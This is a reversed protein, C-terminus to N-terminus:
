VSPMNKSALVSSLSCAKLDDKILLLYKKAFVIFSIFLTTYQLTADQLKLFIADSWVKQAAPDAVIQSVTVAEAVGNRRVKFSDKMGKLVDIHHVGEMMKSPIYVISPYSVLDSGAQLIEGNYHLDMPPNFYVSPNKILLDEFISKEMFNIDDVFTSTANKYFEVYIIKLIAISTPDLKESKIVQLGPTPTEGENLGKDDIFLTQATSLLNFVTNVIAYLVDKPQSSPMLQQVKLIVNKTITDFIAMIRKREATMTQSFFITKMFFTVFYNLFCSANSVVSPSPQAVRTMIQGYLQKFARGANPAINNPITYQNGSIINHGLDRLSGLMNQADMDKQNMAQQMHDVTAKLTEVQAHLDAAQEEATKAREDSGAKANTVATLQETAKDAFKNLVNAHYEEKATLAAQATKADIAGGTQAAQIQNAALTNQAALANEAALTASAAAAAAHETEATHKQSSETAAVTAALSKNKEELEVLLSAAAAKNAELEAELQSTAPQEAVPTAKAHNLKEQTTNLNHRAAALQANAQTLDATKNTLDQIIDREKQQAASLDDLCTKNKQLIWRVMDLFRKKFDPVTSELNKIYGEFETLLAPVTGSSSRIGYEVRASEVVQTYISELQGEVMTSVLGVANDTADLVEAIINPISQPPDMQIAQENWMNIYNSMEEKSIHVKSLKTVVEKADNTVFEFEKVPMKAQLTMFAFQRLLDRVQNDLELNVAKFGAPSGDANYEQCVNNKSSETLEEILIRIRDYLELKARLRINDGMANRIGQMEVNLTDLRNTLGAILLKADDPNCPPLFVSSKNFIDRSFVSSFIAKAGELNTQGPFYSHTFGVVDDHKSPDFGTDNLRVREGALIIEQKYIKPKSTNTKALKERIVSGEIKTRAAQLSSLFKSTPKVSTHVGIQRARADTINEIEKLISYHNRNVYLLRIAKDTSLNTGFSAVLKYEDKIQQYIYLKVNNLEAMFKGIVVADPWAIPGSLINSPDKLTRLKQIYDNVDKFPEGDQGKLYVGGEKVYQMHISEKLAKKLPEDDKIAPDADIEELKQKLIEPSAVKYKDELLHQIKAISEIDKPILRSINSAAELSLQALRPDTPDYATNSELLMVALLVSTYFCWGNGPVDIIHYQGIQITEPVNAM